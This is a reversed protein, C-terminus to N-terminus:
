VIKYTCREPVTLELEGTANIEEEAGSPKDIKGKAKIEVGAIPEGAAATGGALLHGTTGTVASSGTKLPTLTVGEPFTLSSTGSIACFGGSFVNTIRIAGGGIGSGSTVDFDTKTVTVHWPLNDSTVSNLTCFALGGNRTCKSVDPVSFNIVKGTTDSTAEVESTVHCEIGGLGGQFKAWGILHLKTGVAIPKGNEVDVITGDEAALASSAFGMMAIAVVAVGLLGKRISM